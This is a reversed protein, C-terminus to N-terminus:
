PLVQNGADIVPCVEYTGAPLTMDYTPTFTDGPTVFSGSVDVVDTDFFFISDYTIPGGPWSIKLCFQIWDSPCDVYGDYYTVGDDFSSWLTGDGRYDDYMFARGSGCVSDYLHLTVGMNIVDVVDIDDVVDKAGLLIPHTYTPKVRYIFQSILAITALSVLDLDFRVLFYFFKELETLLGSSVFPVFWKPNNKYDEIRIGTGIPAFQEIRDGVIYPTGTVPNIELGSTTSLDLPDKRYVYSRIIESQSPVNGDDDQILIRSFEPSYDNRIETIYGAVEAFPQGFLIQAGVRMAYPTPGRQMSYMLGAVGSLYSFNSGLPAADERLFGVLRGFLDEINADNNFLVLEAWFIDPPELDPGIFVSDRFQLQPIPQELDDRYFPELAYDINELWLTQPATSMNFDGDYQRLPIIDQLRPISVVDAPIEVGKRRKVGLWRLEYTPDQLAAFVGDLRAGVTLSQVGVVYGNHDVFTNTRPDFSEVKVLDGPYAGAVEYDVELSKLVSPIEWGSTADFPLPDVLLLRQNPGPDRPDNLVRDIRFSQGNNLVLLDGNKVGQNVLDIGTDVRYTNDTVRAGRVGSLYNFEGVALGLIPAATSAIGVRFALTESTLVLLLKPGDTVSVVQIDLGAVGATLDSIITALSSGSLTITRQTFTGDVNPTEIVITSGTVPPNGLNFNYAGELKGYRPSITAQEPLTESILTRFAVWKRQFVRQADRLSMNYHHQWVELLRAGLIQTTGRWFETFIEKGQVLRWEDGLANWLFEVSPEIGLPARASVVNVLVEAEESDVEGDNVVLTFRYIGPIDPVAVPTESTSGILLSQRIVRFPQGSLADPITDTTVTLSGGANNVTAIVHRTGSVVLVDNSAVWSPLTNAPFSLLNTVGDADGDDVTNGSSADYAFESNYPADVARWLYSLSAGEPDFSARADLRASNGASIVRDAGPNAVPPLNPLLLSGALEIARYEVSVPQTATGKAVIRFRDNVGPPTAEVPIIWRLPPFPDTERGIFVYARGDGSNVAVRIRHFYTAIEETFETSDPLPAVSGFDDIRAIAVGTQAFYIAVGRGADDALQIGVHHDSLDAVDHPLSPFRVIFDITYQAPMAVNFDAYAATGDASAVTLLKTDAGYTFYPAAGPVLSLDSPGLGLMLQMTSPNFDALNWTASTPIAM